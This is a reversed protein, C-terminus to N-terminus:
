KVRKLYDIIKSPVKFKVYSDFVIGGYLLIMYYLKINKNKAIVGLLNRYIEKTTDFLFNLTVSTDRVKYILSIRVLNQDMSIDWEPTQNKIELIIDDHDVYFLKTKNKHRLFLSVGPYTANAYFFHFVGDEPLLEDEKLTRLAKFIDFVQYEPSYMEVKSM